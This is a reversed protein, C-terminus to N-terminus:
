KIFKKKGVGLLGVIGTGFLFITTPEPVKAHIPFNNGMEYVHHGLANAGGSLWMRLTYIHDINWNNYDFAFLHPNPYFEDGVSGPNFIDIGTTNDTISVTMMNPYDHVCYFTLLPGLGSFLPTFVTESWAKTNAPWSAGPDDREDLVESYLFGPKAISRIMMVRDLGLPDEDFEVKAAIQHNSTINYEEYVQEGGSLYGIKGQIHYTTDLVYFFPTAHAYSALLLFVLIFVIKKM